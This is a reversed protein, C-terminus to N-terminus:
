CTPLPTPFHHLTTSLPPTISHHIPHRLSVVYKRVKPEPTNFLITSLFNHLTIRLTDAWKKSFYPGFEPDKDPESMYPLAYRCVVVVVVVVVGVVVVDTCFL